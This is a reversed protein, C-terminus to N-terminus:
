ELWNHLTIPSDTATESAQEKLGRLQCLLLDFLNKFSGFAYNDINEITSDTQRKHYIRRLTKAIEGQIDLAQNHIYSEDMVLTTNHEKEMAKKARLLIGQINEADKLSDSFMAILKLNDESLFSRDKYTDSFHKLLEQERLQDRNMPNSKESQILSQESLDTKGTDTKTDTKLTDLYSPLYLNNAIKAIGNSGNSDSVEQPNASIAIGNSVNNDSVEQPNASIAIGNNILYVDEATVEPKGLYLKNPLNQQKGNVVKSGCRKQYLLGASELEKKIKSIKGERCQLLSMLEHVTYIFYINDDEDIWNNKISYEFRDKLIAYAIKTDNSLSIYKDNTFFVKPLQFYKEGYIEKTKYFNFNSM